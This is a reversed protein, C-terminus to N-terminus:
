YHGMYYVKNGRLNEAYINGIASFLEEDNNHKALEALQQMVVIDVLMNSCNFAPDRGGRIHYMNQMMQHLDYYKRFYAIEIFDDDEVYFDVMPYMEERIPNFSRFYSDLGM